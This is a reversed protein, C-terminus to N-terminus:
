AALSHKAQYSALFEARDAKDAVPDGSSLLEDTGPGLLKSM